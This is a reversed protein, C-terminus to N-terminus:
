DELSALTSRQYTMRVEFLHLANISALLWDDESDPPARTNRLASSVLKISQIHHALSIKEWKTDKRALMAAGCAALAHLLSPRELVYQFGLALLSYSPDVWSVCHVSNFTQLLFSLQGAHADPRPTNTPEDWTLYSMLSLQPSSPIMVAM